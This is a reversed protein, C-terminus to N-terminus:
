PAVPVPPTELDFLTWNKGEAVIAAAGRWGELSDPWQRAERPGFFLYRAGLRSAHLRWDKGGNMLGDLRRDQAAYDIGHSWVHSPYGLVVKRGILLLPHNYSPEAAFTETIPINSTADRLEQLESVTAIHFGEYQSNLGGILTVFGSFFLGIMAVGRM